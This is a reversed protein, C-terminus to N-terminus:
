ALARVCINPCTGAAATSRPTDVDSSPVASNIFYGMMAHAGNGFLLGVFVAMHSDSRESMCASSGTYQELETDVRASPGVINQCLGDCCVCVGNM